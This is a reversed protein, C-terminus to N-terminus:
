GNSAGEYFSEVPLEPTCRKALGALTSGYGVEFCKTPELLAIADMCDRWRVPSAVHVSLKDKWIDANHYARGDDNSCIPFKPETFTMTELVPILEDVADQMYPTHFAGDVPLKVVKKIEYDRAIETAKDISEPKGAVVIQGPANDNAIWLEDLADCLLQASTPDAGLLAAMAGGYKDACTQTAKARKSAFILGQEFELVGACILASVQGLSHGAFGVIERDLCKSLEFSMLSTILIALQSDHTSTLPDDCLLSKTDIDLIEGARQAISFEPRDIFPLGMGPKQTGQGPFLMAIREAM